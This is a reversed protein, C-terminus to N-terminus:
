LMSRGGRLPMASPTFFFVIASKSFFKQGGGAVLLLPLLVEQCRSSCRQAAVSREDMVPCCPLLVIYLPFFSKALSFISLSSSIFEESSRRLM